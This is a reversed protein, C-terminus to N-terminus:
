VIPVWYAMENDPSDLQVQQNYVELQPAQAPQLGSAPLYHSWVSMIFSQFGSVPGQYRYVAYRSQPLTIRTLGEPADNTNDDTAEVATMYEFPQACDGQKRIQAPVLSVGYLSSEGACHAGECLARFAAWQELAQQFDPEPHSKHLGLLTLSANEIIEPQMIEGKCLLLPNLIAAPTQMRKVRDHRRFQAPAAGYARKFARTFAEQSEFQADLAIDLIRRNGTLLQMASWELRRLRLFRAFSKGVLRSFIRHFHYPSFAAM